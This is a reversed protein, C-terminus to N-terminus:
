KGSPPLPPRLYSAHANATGWTKALLTLWTARAVKSWIPQSGIEDFLQIAQEFRLGAQESSTSCAMEIQALADLWYARALRSKAWQRARRAIALAHDCESLALHALALDAYM